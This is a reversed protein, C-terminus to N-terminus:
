EQSYYISREDEHAVRASIIRKVNNRLTYVVALVIENVMGFTIYREENNKPSLAEVRMKDEFVLIADEFDISHKKLNSKRKNEDWEFPKKKNM